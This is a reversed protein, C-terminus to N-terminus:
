APRVFVTKGPVPIGSMVWTLTAVPDADPNRWAEKRRRVMYQFAFETDIIVYDGESTIHFRYYDGFFPDPGYDHQNKNPGLRFGFRFTDSNWETIILPYRGGGTGM